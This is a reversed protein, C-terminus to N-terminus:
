WNTYFMKVSVCVMKTQMHFMQYLSFLRVCVHMFVNKASLTDHWSNNCQKDECWLSYTVSITDGIVMPSTTKHRRERVCVCVCVWQPLQPMDDFELWAFFVVQTSMQKAKNPEAKSCRKRAARSCVHVGCVNQYKHTHTATYTHTATHTLASTVDGDNCSCCKIQLMKITICRSCMRYAIWYYLVRRTYM